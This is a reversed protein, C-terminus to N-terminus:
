VCKIFIFVKCIFIHNIEGQNDQTSLATTIYARKGDNNCNGYIMVRSNSSTADTVFLADDGNYVGFAISRLEVYDHRNFSMYDLVKDDLLCGDRSYKHINNADHLTIYIYPPGLCDSYDDHSLINISNMNNNHVNHGQYGRLSTQNNMSSCKECFLTIVFVIIIDRMM